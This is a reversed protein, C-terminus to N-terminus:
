DNLKYYAGFLIMMEDTSRLGFRLIRDEDNNYTVELKLGQGASLSLPPNLELIPPHEWDYAIYVLEGNQEGGTVLVRFETMKSHAHSFLQFIHIDEDFRFTRTLTTVQNAPLEFEDHNLNLIEAIHTVDSSDITHINAFVEGVVAADTKNAYHSNMDFGANAPVKLAVGEPFQYNMSPWQTGTVFQHYQMHILTAVDYSGDELYVDRIVSSAPLLSTPLLEPFQYLIFHHSGPRMVIEVQNIYLPETNELREYVLIERDAGASVDFPGVHFQYGQAPPDLPEFASPAYRSIDQLLDINAVKGEKPAGAIIWERIFELEGNTLSEGGLPMIAGYYPHDTYFHEQDPANIKEWLFSKYISPLGETGLLELGDEKAAVNNPARGILQEYSIDSTLILDSQQAFTTGASHCSTCQRDWIEGQIVDYSSQYTQLPNKEEDGACSALFAMIVVSLHLIRNKAM